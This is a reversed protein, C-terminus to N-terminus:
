HESIGSMNEILSGFMGLDNITLGRQIRTFHQTKLWLKLGPSSAEARADIGIASLNSAVCCSTFRRASSTTPSASAPSSGKNSGCGRSEQSDVTGNSVTRYRGISHITECMLDPM